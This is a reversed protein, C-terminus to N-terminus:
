VYFNFMYVMVPSRYSTCGVFWETQMPSGFHKPQHLKSHIFTMVQEDSSLTTYLPIIDSKIHDIDIVKAFEGLRASAARRVMPTEDGCLTRFMRDNDDDYFESVNDNLKDGGRHVVTRIFVTMM